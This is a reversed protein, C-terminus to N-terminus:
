KKVWEMIQNWFFFKTCIILYLIIITSLTSRESKFAKKFNYSGENSKNKSFRPFFRPVDKKYDLYENGFKKELLDEEWLVIPIYQIWFMLLYVLLFWWIGSLFSLGLSLLFNGDYLPNRVKSFPGSTVLNDVSGKRTRSIGGIYAVS